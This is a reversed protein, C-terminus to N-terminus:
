YCVLRKNREHEAARDRAWKRNRQRTRRNTPGEVQMGKGVGISYSWNSLGPFQTVGQKMCRKPVRGLGFDRKRAGVAYGDMYCECNERGAQAPSVFVDGLMVLAMGTAAMM